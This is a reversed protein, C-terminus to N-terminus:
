AAMRKARRYITDYKVTAYLAAVARAAEAPSKGTGLQERLASVWAEALPTPRGAPEDEVPVPESMNEGPLEPAIIEEVMQLMTPGREERRGLVGKMSVALYAVNSALPFLVGRWDIESDRVYFSALNVVCSAIFSMAAVGAMLKFQANNIEGRKDLVAFSWFMLIEIAAVPALTEVLLFVWKATMEPEGLKFADASLLFASIGLNLMVILKISRELTKIM